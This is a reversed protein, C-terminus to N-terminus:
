SSRTAKKIIGATITQRISGLRKWADELPARNPELVREVTFSDPRTRSTVDEWPLPWSVPAGSRARPSYPAVWTAGRRNRLTDIFIRRGRRAKPLHTTFRDPDERVIASALGTSFEKVQGWDPGRKTPVVVHLGKGGTTKVFSELGLGDLRERLNRAGELVDKWPTSEHPDFDFVVRDPRELADARAGWLHIELVGMQALLLLGKEDRLVLYTETGGKERIRVSGLARPVPGSPHKQFFCRGRGAPCRLLMLPRGAAHELLRSGVAQFYQALQLKTIGQEPFLVREPHTLSIGAPTVEDLPERVPRKKPKPIPDQIAPKEGPNPDRVPPPLRPPTDPPRRRLPPVRKEAIPGEVPSERVVEGPQKDERLGLFSPHRLRGDNTWSGFSVEAVLKPSVWHAKEAGPPRSSFPSREVELRELKRRLDDLTEQTFGTGVKGRYRLGDGNDHTGLLLAGLGSRSGQPETYGGIVFEQRSTCKTKLWSGARTAVYRADRRKSIIGELARRCAAGHFRVGQGIVHDSFRVAGQEARSPLISALLSKRRELPVGTLDYGDLYLLDFVFYSMSGKDGERMQNQLAQFSTSGDALLVVMEGDVIAQKAPLAGVERAIAGFRETWDKGGRTIMRARGRELRALVRYGDYKIEHLWEDGDPAESVLTALQPEPRAPMPRRAAGPLAALDPLSVARAGPRTRGKSKSLNKKPERNSKWVKTRRGEAIEEIIKGSSVSEPRAAVIGGNREPEAWSDRQKMLLWNKKEGDSRLRVLHFSGRLKKGFLEFALHGKRLGALPDGEPAWTGRDWLLVSGGGYEGKPITGEFGRYEIPHDEVEVALRKEGPDLSPGKPVAWSKLVGALELRFDYHLRTAAHKQVVFRLKSGKKGKVGRPESTKTFDRKKKYATLSM